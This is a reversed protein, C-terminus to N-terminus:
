EEGGRGEESRGIEPPRVFVIQSFGSRPLPTATAYETKSQSRDGSPLVANNKVPPSGLLIRFPTIRCTSRAEPAAFARRSSGSKSSHCACKEWSPRQTTNLAVGFTLVDDRM